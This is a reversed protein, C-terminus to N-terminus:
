GRGPGRVRRVALAAWSGGGGLWWWGAVPRAGRGVRGIRWVAVPRVGLGVAVARGVGGAGALRLGRSRSRRGGVRARKGTQAHVQGDACAGARRRMCRGAQAHVQGGACAGARRRAGAGDCWGARARMGAGGAGCVGPQACGTACWGRAAWGAGGARDRGCGRVPQAAGARDCGGARTWMGVGGEQVWLAGAEDVQARRAPMWRGVVGDRCGRGVAALGLGGWGRRGRSGGGAIRWKGADDGVDAVRFPQCLRTRFPQAHCQPSHPDAM